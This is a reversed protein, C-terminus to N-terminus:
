EEALAMMNGTALGEVVLFGTPPTVDVSPTPMKLGHHEMLTVPVLGMDLLVNVTLQQVMHCGGRPDEDVRIAYKNARQPDNIDHMADLGWSWQVTGAGFTLPASSGNGRRHLVLSHTGTASDFTSGEDMLAAVNNVTTESLKQLAPPRWGNDVDSNWEHGLVAAHWCLSKHDLEKDAFERVQTGWWARHMGFRKADIVLYDERQANAVFMTGSLSNEPMAGKPNIPRSDRFTGTWSGPEPDLKTTSQTEKYCVLTRPPDNAVDEADEDAGAAAGDARVGVQQKDHYVSPEFRIAWYAENASWFNLHLGNTDRAHEIAARQEYSWYEDHAVSLYAASRALLPGSRAPVALDAGTCYHIDYGNRELFRIAPYEAGLPANIARYARTILPTNYSRKHARRLDHGPESINLPRKHPLHEFPYVFSGYTTLGGYGNYAHATTDATQFLLARRPLSDIRSGDTYEPPPALERVVFWMHTARPERLAFHSTAAKYM